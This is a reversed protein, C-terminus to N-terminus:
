LEICDAEVIEKASKTEIKKSPPRKYTPVFIQCELCNKIEHNIDNKM